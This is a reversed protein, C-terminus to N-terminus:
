PHSIPALHTSLARVKVRLEQAEANLADREASVPQVRGSVEAAVAQTWTLRARSFFFVTFSLISGQPPLALPPSLSLPPLSARVQEFSTELVMTTRMKDDHVARLALHEREKAALDKQLRQVEERAERDRATLDAVMTKLAKTDGEYRSSVEELQRKADSLKRQAADHAAEARKGDVRIQGSRLMKQLAGQTLTPYHRKFWRDLRAGADGPKVPITLVTM